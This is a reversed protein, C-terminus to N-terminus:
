TGAISKQLANLKNEADDTNILRRGFPDTVYTGQLNLRGMEDIMDASAAPIREILDELERREPETLPENLRWSDLNEGGAALVAAEDLVSRRLQYEEASVPEYARDKRLVERARLRRELALMDRYNGLKEKAYRVRFAMRDTDATSPPPPPAPQPPPPPKAIGAAPATPRPPASAIPETRPPPAAPPAPKPPSEGRLVLVIALVLVAAAVSVAVWGFMHSAHLESRSKHYAEGAEGLTPVHIPGGCTPCRGKKGAKSDAVEYHMGCRACKVEIM